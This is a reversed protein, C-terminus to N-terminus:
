KLYTHAKGGPKTSIRKSHKSGCIKAHAKTVYVKKKHVGQKYYAVKKGTRKSTEVHIKRMNKYGHVRKGDIKQSTRGKMQHTCTLVM